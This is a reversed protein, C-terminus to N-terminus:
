NKASDPGFALNTNTSEIHIHNIIPNKLVAGMTSGDM